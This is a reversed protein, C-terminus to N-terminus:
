MERFTKRKTESKQRETEDVSNEHMFLKAKCLQENECKIKLQEENLESNWASYRDRKEM